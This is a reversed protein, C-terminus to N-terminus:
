PAQPGLVFEGRSAKKAFEGNLQLLNELIDDIPKFRYAQMVLKDLEAHLKNSLPHTSEAFVKNYLQPIKLLM